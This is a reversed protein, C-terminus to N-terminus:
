GTHGEAPGANAVGGAEWGGTLRVSHFAGETDGRKPAVHSALGFGEKGLQRLREVVDFDDNAVCLRIGRSHLSGDGMFYGVLEALDPTMHRPARAHREGAWYAEPMPPLLVEQPEGLAPRTGVARPRRPASR